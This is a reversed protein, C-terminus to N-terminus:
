LKKFDLRTDLQYYKFELRTPRDPRINVAFSLARLPGEYIIDAYNQQNKVQGRGTLTKLSTLELM